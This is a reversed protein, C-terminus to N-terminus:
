ARDKIVIKFVDEQKIEVCHRSLLREKGAEDNLLAKMPGVKFKKDVLEPFDKIFESMNFGDCPQIVTEAGFHLYGGPMKFNGDDDFKARNAEAFKQLQAAAQAQAKAVKEKQQKYKIYAKMAAKAQQIPSLKPKATKM